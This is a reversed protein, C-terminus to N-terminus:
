HATPDAAPAKVSAASPSASPGTNVPSPAPAPAPVPAMAAPAAASTDATVGKRSAAAKDSTAGESPSAAKDAKPSCRAGLTEAPGCRNSWTPGSVSVRAVTVEPAPSAASSASASARATAPSPMPGDLFHGHGRATTALTPFFAAYQMMSIGGPESLIAAGQLPDSDALRRHASGEKGPTMEM